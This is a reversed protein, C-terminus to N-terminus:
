RRGEQTLAREAVDAAADQAAWEQLAEFVEDRRLLQALELLRRASNSFDIEGDPWVLHARRTWEQYARDMELELPGHGDGLDLEFGDCLGLLEFPEGAKERGKWATVVHALGGGLDTREVTERIMDETESEPTGLLM